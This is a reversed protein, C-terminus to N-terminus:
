SLRLQTLTDTYLAKFLDVLKQPLGLSLLLLWLAELNVSDFAVHLDVYAIGLPCCCECRTQLLLQLTIILDITSKLLAFGGQLVRRYSRLRECVRFLLVNAFM